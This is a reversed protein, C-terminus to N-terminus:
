VTHYIQLALSQIFWNFSYNNIIWNISAVVLTGKLRITDNALVTFHREIVLITPVM